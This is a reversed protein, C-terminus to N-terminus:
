DRAWALQMIEEGDRLTSRNGTDTFGTREYLRQARRNDTRTWVSLGEWDRSQLDRIMETGVHSGWVAPDVFVMSLHGYGPLPVGDVLYTEAVLMGAPRPGYHALLALEAAALKGEVRRIRGATANRRRAANAARWIDVAVARQETSDIEAVIIRPM